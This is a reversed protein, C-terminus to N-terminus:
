AASAVGVLAPLSEAMMIEAFKADSIEQMNGGGIHVVARARACALCGRTARAVLNPATLPHGQPCHTKLTAPHPWQPTEARKRRKWERNNKNTCARCRRTRKQGNWVLPSNEPTYEHGKPCRNEVVTRQLKSNEEPTLLDLHEPNVCSTNFCKHNVTMGDPIQGFHLEYSFRHAL